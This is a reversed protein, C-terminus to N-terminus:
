TSIFNLLQELQNVGGDEPPPIPKTKKKRAAPWPFKANDAYSGASKAMGPWEM